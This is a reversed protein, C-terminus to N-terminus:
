VYNQSIRRRQWSVLFFVIVILSLLFLFNYVSYDSRYTLFLSLCPLAFNPMTPIQVLFGALRKVLSTYTQKDSEESMILKRLLSSYPGRLFLDWVAYLHFLGISFAVVAELVNLPQYLKFATFGFVSSYLALLLYLSLYSNWALSLSQWLANLHRRESLLHEITAVSTQFYDRRANINKFQHSALVIFFHCIKQTIGRHTIQHNIEDWVLGSLISGFLFGWLWIVIDLLFGFVQKM